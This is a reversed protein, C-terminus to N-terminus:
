ESKLYDDIQDLGANVRQISAEFEDLDQHEQLEVQRIEKLKAKAEDTKQRIQILLEKIEEHQDVKVYISNDM